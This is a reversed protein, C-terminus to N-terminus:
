SRARFLSTFKTQKNATTNESHAWEEFSPQDVDSDYNREDQSLILSIYLCVLVPLSVLHLSRIENVFATKRIVILITLLDDEGGWREGRGKGRGEGGKSAEGQVLLHNRGFHRFHLGEKAKFSFAVYYSLLSLHFKSEWFSDIWICSNILLGVFIGTVNRKFCLTSSNIKSTKM